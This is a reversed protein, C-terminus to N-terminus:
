FSIISFLRNKVVPSTFSLCSRKHRPLNITLTQTTMVPHSFPILLLGWSFYIRKFTLSSSLKYWPFLNLARYQLAFLALQSGLKLSHCKWVPHMRKWWDDAETVKHRRHLSRYRCLSALRNTNVQFATTSFIFELVRMKTRGLLSPTTKSPKCFHLIEKNSIAIFIFIYWRKVFFM